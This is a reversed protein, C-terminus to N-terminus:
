QSPAYLQLHSSAHHRPHIVVPARQVASVNRKQRNPQLNETGSTNHHQTHFSSSMATLIGFTSQPNVQTLHMDTSCYTPDLQLIFRDTIFPAGPPSTQQLFLPFPTPLVLMLSVCLSSASFARFVGIELYGLLSLSDLSDIQYKCFVHEQISDM